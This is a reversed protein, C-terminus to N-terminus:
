ETMRYNMIKYCVEFWSPGLIEGGESKLKWENNIKCDLYRIVM